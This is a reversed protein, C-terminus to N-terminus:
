AASEKEAQELLTMYYLGGGAAFGKRRFFRAIAPTYASASVGMDIRAVKRLRCWAIFADVLLDGGADALFALDTAGMHHSMPMPGIEGILFGVLVGGREAVYVRADGDELARKATRRAIVANFPVGDYTSGALKHKAFAVIASLDAHTAKRVMLSM